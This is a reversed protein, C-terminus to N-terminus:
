IQTNKWNFFKLYLISATGLTCFYIYEVSWVWFIDAHLVKILIFAGLTYTFVSL